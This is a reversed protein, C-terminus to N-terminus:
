EQYILGFFPLGPSSPVPKHKAGTLDAKALQAGRLDAKTLDAELLQGGKLKVFSLSTSYLFAGNANCM